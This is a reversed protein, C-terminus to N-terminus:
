ILYSARKFMRINYYMSTFGSINYYMSTFGSINYYISTFGSKRKEVSNQNSGTSCLQITEGIIEDFIFLVNVCILKFIMSSILYTHNRVFDNYFSVYSFM